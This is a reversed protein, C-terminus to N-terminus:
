EFSWFPWWIFDEVNSLDTAADFPLGAAATTNWVGQAQLRLNNWWIGKGIAAWRDHAPDGVMYGIFNDGGRTIVRGFKANCRGKVIQGEYMGLIMYEPEAGSAAFSSAYENVLEEYVVVRALGTIAPAADQWTLGGALRQDTNNFPKAHRWAEPGATSYLLVDAYRGEGMALGTVKLYGGVEEGEWAADSVAELAAYFKELLPNYVWNGDAEFDETM